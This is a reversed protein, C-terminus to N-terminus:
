YYKCLLHRTLGVRVRRGHQRQALLELWVVLLRGLHRVVCHPVHPVHPVHAVHPVALAARQLALAARQARGARRRVAGHQALAAPAAPLVYVCVRYMYVLHRWVTTYKKLSRGSRASLVNASSRPAGVVTCFAYHHARASCASTFTYTTANYMVSNASVVHVDSINFNMSILYQHVNASNFARQLM